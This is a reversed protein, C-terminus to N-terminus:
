DLAALVAQAGAALPAVEAEAQRATVDSAAVARRALVGARVGNGAPVGEDARDLRALVPGPAVDVLQRHPDGLDLALRAYRRRREAGSQMASETMHRLRRGGRPGYPREM